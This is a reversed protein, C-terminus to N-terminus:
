FLYSFLSFFKWLNFRKKNNGYQVQRMNKVEKVPGTLKVNLYLTNHTAQLILYM